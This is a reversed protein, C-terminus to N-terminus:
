ASSRIHDGVQLCRDKDGMSSRRTCASAVLPFRFERVFNKETGLMEGERVVSTALIQEQALEEM